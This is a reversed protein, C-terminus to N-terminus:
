AHPWRLAQQINWVMHIYKRERVAADALMESLQYCGCRYQDRESEATFLARRHESHCLAIIRDSLLDLETWEEDSLYDERESLEDRRLVLKALERCVTWEAQEKCLVFVPTGDPLRKHETTDHIDGM